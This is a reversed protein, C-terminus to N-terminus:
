TADSRDLSSSPASIFGLGDRHRIYSGPYNHASWSYRRDLSYWDYYGVGKNRLGHAAARECFTKWTSSEGDHPDGSVKLLRMAERLAGATAPGWRGDVALQAGMLDNCLAQLFVNDSRSDTLHRPPADQWDTHLHDQHKGDYNGDLVYRFRTRCMADVAWYRRRVTLSTHAHDKAAPRCAVSIGGAPDKWQVYALDMAEGAGHGLTDGAVGFGNSRSLRVDDYKGPGGYTRSFYKLARMWLETRRLFRETCRFPVTPEITSIPKTTYIVPTGDVRTFTTWTQSSAVTDV